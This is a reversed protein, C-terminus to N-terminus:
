QAGCTSEFDADSNSGGRVVLERVEAAASSFPQRLANLIRTFDPHSFNCSKFHPGAPDTIQELVRSIWSSRFFVKPVAAEVRAAWEERPKEAIASLLLSGMYRLRAELSQGGNGDDPHDIAIVSKAWAALTANSHQSLSVISRSLTFYDIHRATTIFEAILFERDASESSDLGLRESMQLNFCRHYLGDFRELIDEAISRDLWKEEDAAAHTTRKTSSTRKSAADAQSNEGVLADALSPSEM